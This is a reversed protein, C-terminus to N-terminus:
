ADLSGDSLNKAQLRAMQKALSIRAYEVDTNPDKKEIIDRDYDAKSMARARDITSGEEINQCLMVARNEKVHLVGQFLAYFKKKGGMWIKLVGSPLCSVITPTYGKEIMLPGKEVPVIFSEVEAAVAIGAPTLVALPIM